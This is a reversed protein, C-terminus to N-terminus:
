CTTPKPESYPIREQENLDELEIDLSRFEKLGCPQVSIWPGRESNRRSIAPWGSAIWEVHKWHSHNGFIGRRGVLPPQKGTLCGGGCNKSSTKSYCSRASRSPRKRASGVPTLVMVRKGDPSLDWITGGLKAIGVDGPWLVLVPVPSPYRHRQGGRRVLLISATTGTSLAEAEEASRAYIV